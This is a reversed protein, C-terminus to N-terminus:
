QAPSTTPTSTATSPQTAARREAILTWIQSMGMIPDIEVARRALKEARDVDGLLLAVAASQEWARSYNPQVERATAM